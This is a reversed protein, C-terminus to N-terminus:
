TDLAAAPPALRPVLERAQRDAEALTREIAAQLRGDAALPAILAWSLALFSPWNALYRYLSALIRGDGREGLANLRWALDAVHSSMEAPDLLRVMKEIKPVERASATTLHPLATEHEVGAKAGKLVLLLANLSLVNM